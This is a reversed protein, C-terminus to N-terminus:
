YVINLSEPPVTLSAPDVGSFDLMDGDAAIGVEMDGRRFTNEKEDFLAFGNPILISHIGNLQSKFIKDEILIDIDKTELELMLTSALGLSGYLIHNSNLIDNFSKALGQFEIIKSNNSM